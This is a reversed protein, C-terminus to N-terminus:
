KRYYGITLEKKMLDVITNFHRDTEEQLIKTKERIEKIEQRDAGDRYEKKCLFLLDYFQGILPTILLTLESSLYLQSRWFINKLAQISNETDFEEKLSVCSHIEAQGKNRDQQWLLLIKEIKGKPLSLTELHDKIDEDNFWSYSSRGKLPSSLHSLFSHSILLAEYLNIYHEHKKVTYLNFDVLKRQYEFKTNETIDQLAREYEKLRKSFHYDTGKNIIYQFWAFITIGSIGWSALITNWDLTKFWEVM